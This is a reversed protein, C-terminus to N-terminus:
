QAIWEWGNPTDLERQALRQWPTGPHDKVVQELYKRSSKVLKDISSDTSFTPAPVMTWISDTPKGPRKGQKIQAIATNYGEYKARAGLVRGMALDYEAQWRAGTLKPRDSEGASLAAYLPRLKPEIRAVSQQAKDCERKLTAEDQKVFTTLLGSSNGLEIPELMAANHLAMRCKNENLLAEYEAQSVYDPAYKAALKSDEWREIGFGSFNGRKNDSSGRVMLYSGGSVKCLRSLAFPGFGSDIMEKSFPVGEFDIAIMEKGASEPGLQLPKDSGMAPTLSLSGDRGLPAPAGIVYLTVAYKELLPVLEDAKSVDDGRQDSVITLVLSRQKATRYSAFENIVRKIAACTNVPGNEDVVSDLCRNLVFPDDSPDPNFLECTKGYAAVATLLPPGDKSEKFADHGQKKLQDFGQYVARFRAMVAARNKSAMPTRDFLWIALTPRAELGDVIEWGVRDTALEASYFDAQGRSQALSGEAFPGAPPVRGFPRGSKKSGDNKPKKKPKPPATESGAAATASKDSSDDASEEAPPKDKVVKAVPIPKNLALFALGGGVGIVLTSIGFVIVHIYSNSKKKAKSKTPSASSALRSSM